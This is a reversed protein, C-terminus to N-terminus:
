RRSVFLYGAVAGLVLAGFGAAILVKRAYPPSPQVYDPGHEAELMSLRRWAGVFLIVMFLPMAIEFYDVARGPRSIALFANVAAALLLLAVGFGILRKANRVTM